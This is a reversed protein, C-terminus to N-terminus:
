RAASPAPRSGVGSPRSASTRRIRARWSWSQRRRSRHDGSPSSSSSAASSRMARASTASIGRAQTIGPAPGEPRVSRVLIWPRILRAPPSPSSARRSRRSSACVSTPARRGSSSPWTRGRRSSGGAEVMTQTIATRVDWSPHGAGDRIILSGDPAVADWWRALGADVVERPAVLDFLVLSFDRRPEYERVDATVLEVRGALGARDLADRLEADSGPRAEGRDLSVVRAGAAALLFTTGGMYRGVEAVAPDPGLDDAVLRWLYSAEAFEQRSLGHNMINSGFLWSLDEFRTGTIEQGAFSASVAQRNSWRHLLRARVRPDEAVREVLPLAGSLVVFQM